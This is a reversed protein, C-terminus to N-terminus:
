ISGSIFIHSSYQCDNMTDLLLSFHKKLVLDLTFLSRETAQIHLCTLTVPLLGKLEWVSTDAITVNVSVRGYKTMFDGILITDPEAPTSNGTKM